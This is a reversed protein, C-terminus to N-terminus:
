DKSNETPVRKRVLDIRFEQRGNGSSGGGFGVVEWGGAILMELFALAEDKTSM